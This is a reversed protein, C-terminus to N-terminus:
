PSGTPEAQDRQSSGQTHGAEALQISELVLGDGSQLELNTGGCEPCSALLQDSTTTRGCSRCDLRVPEIVLDLHAGDAVTGDSVMILAQNLAPESIHLLVGARVRARRVPRGGARREMANLIAGAIALEYM